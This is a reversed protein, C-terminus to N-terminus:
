GLLQIIEENVKGLDDDYFRGKSYQCYELLSLDNGDVNIIGNRDAGNELLFCVIDPDTKRVAEVLATENYKDSKDPDAKHAILTKIVALNSARAANVIPVKEEEALGNAPMGLDLLYRVLKDADPDPAYDKKMGAAISLLSGDFQNNLNNYDVGKKVFFDFMDLHEKAYYLINNRTDILVHPDAGHELLLKVTNMDGMSAAFMLPTRPIFDNGLLNADAGSELLLKTAEYKGAKITCHLPAMNKNTTQNLDARAEIMTRLQQLDGSEAAKHIEFQKEPIPPSGNVSFHPPVIFENAAYLSVCIMTVILSTIIPNTFPLDLVICAAYILIFFVALSPLFTAVYLRFDKTSMQRPIRRFYISMRADLFRIRIKSFFHEFLAILVGVVVFAAIIYWHRTNGPNFFFAITIGVMPTVIYPRLIFNIATALGYLIVFGLM